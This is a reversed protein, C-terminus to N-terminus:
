RAVIIAYRFCCLACAGKGFGPVYPLRVGSGYSCALKNIPAYGRIACLALVLPMDDHGSAFSLSVNNWLPGSPPLLTRQEFLGNPIHRLEKIGVLVLDIVSHPCVSHIFSMSLFFKARKGGGGGGGGPINCM